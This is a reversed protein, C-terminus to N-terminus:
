SPKRSVRQIATESVKSLSPPTQAGRASRRAKVAASWDHSVPTNATESSGSAQPKKTTTHKKGLYRESDSEIKDVESRPIMIRGYKTIAEIKGSYLLRYAWTKERGFVASFEKPTYTRQDSM